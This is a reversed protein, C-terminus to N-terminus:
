TVNITVSLTFPVKISFFFTEMKFKGKKIFFPQIWFGFPGKACM